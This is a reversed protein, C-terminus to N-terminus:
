KGASYWKPVIRDFGDHDDLVRQIRALMDDIEGPVVQLTWVVSSIMTMGLYLSYLRWFPENPDGLGHYGQIQGIAFPVSVEASFMGVKVFEHVPDGWDCRNFDIVGSLAGDKVILNAPHFDDHQFRNPRDEMLRLHDDLFALLKAEGRISVGCGAYATRYRRHKALMREQWSAMPVPCGIRNLLQLEEGAQVGIAFQVQESLSPLAEAAEDGDIYTVIMYGLELEPLVGIAIPKSCKAGNAAALLLNDYEMRKGAEQSIAYTRLISQPRGDGGYVVYKVDSSYGKNLHELRSSDNLNSIRGRLLEADIRKDNGM